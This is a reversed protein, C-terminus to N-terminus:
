WALPKGNKAYYARDMLYYVLFMIPGLVGLVVSCVLLSTTVPDYRETEVYMGTGHVFEGDVQPSETSTFACIYDEGSSSPCYVMQMFFLSASPINDLKSMNFVISGGLLAKEAANLGDLTTISSPWPVTAMTFPCNVTLETYAKNKSRYKRQNSAVNSYCLKYKIETPLSGDYTVIDTTPNLVYDVKIHATGMSLLPTNFPAANDSNFCAGYVPTSCTNIVDPVDVDGVASTLGWQGSCGAAALDSFEAPLLPLSPSPLTLSSCSSHQPTPARQAPPPPSGM